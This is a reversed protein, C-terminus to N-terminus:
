APLSNACPALRAGNLRLTGLTTNDWDKHQRNGAKIWTLEAATIVGAGKVRM